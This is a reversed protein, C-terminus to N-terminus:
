LAGGIRKTNAPIQQYGAYTIRQSLRVPLAHEYGKGNRGGVTTNGAATATVGSQSGPVIRTSRAAATAIMWGSWILGFAIALCPFKSVGASPPTRPGVPLSKAHTAHADPPTEIM